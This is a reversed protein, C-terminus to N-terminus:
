RRNSRAGANIAFMSLSGAGDSIESIASIPLTGASRSPGTGRAFRRFIGAERLNVVAAREARERSQRAALM